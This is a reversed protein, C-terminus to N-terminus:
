QKCSDLVEYSIGEEIMLPPQRSISNEVQALIQPNSFNVYAMHMWPYQIPKSRTKQRRQAIFALSEFSAVSQRITPDFQYQIIFKQDVANVAIKLKSPDTLTASIM